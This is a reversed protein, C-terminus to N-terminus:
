VPEEEARLRAPTDAPVVAVATIEVHYRPDALAVVRVSTAAPPPDGLLRARVDATARWLESVDETTFWTMWVVDHLTGDGERCCQDIALLAAEVEEAPSAAEAVQGAIHILRGGESAVAHSYGIAPADFLGPPQLGRRSAATM